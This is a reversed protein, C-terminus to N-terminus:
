KTFRRTFWCGCTLLLITTPEPVVELTLQAYDIGVNSWGVAANFRESQLFPILNNGAVNALNVSCITTETENPYWNLEGFSPRVSGTFFIDSLSGRLGLTLTAGTISEGPALDYVFTFPVTGSSVLIDFSAVTWGGGQNWSLWAPDIYVDDVSGAGNYTFNDIDGLLYQRTEANAPTVLVGLTIVFVAWFLNLQRM